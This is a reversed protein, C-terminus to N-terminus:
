HVMKKSKKARRSVKVFNKKNETNLIYELEYAILTPCATDLRENMANIDKSVESVDMKFKNEHTINSNNYSSRSIKFSITIAYHDSMCHNMVATRCGGLSDSAFIYDNTAKGGNKEYTPLSIDSKSSM